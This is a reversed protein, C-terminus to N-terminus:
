SIDESKESKYYLIEPQSSRPMNFLSFSYYIAKGWYVSVGADKRKRSDRIYMFIGLLMVLFFFGICGLLIVGLASPDDETLNLILIAALFCMIIGFIVLFIGWVSNYGVGTRFSAM